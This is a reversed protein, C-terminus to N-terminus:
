ILDTFNISDQNPVIINYTKNEAISDTYTILIEYTKTVTATEVLEVEWYGDSGANVTVESRLLLLGTHKFPTLNRVSVTGELPTGDPEILWGYLICKSPISPTSFFNYTVVHQSISPTTTGGNSHLFVLLRFYVGSSLDLSGANTNIEAVTSSQAFTANSTAWAAGDWYRFTSTGSPTTRTELVCKVADSGTEVLSATLGELGDLQLFTNSTVTPNDTGYEEGQVSFNIQDVSSQTNSQGFFVAVTITSLGTTPFMLLNAIIDAKSSAQAYTNNSDSWAEGDWYKGQLTYRPTGSETSTPASAPRLTGPGTYTFVPLVAFSETYIFDVLTYGLTYTTTHQINSYIIYNDFSADAVNYVSPAAGLFYSVIIGGRVWAGINTSSLLAGDVFLYIIGSTSDLALEFEYDTGSVPSWASLVSSSELGGSSNYLNLRINNGSPSNFLEFRDGNGSSAKCTLINVNTAPGTTYNPTYIFKHTELATSTSEYSVGHVGQCVLKGNTIIPTGNLTASVSGAKSWTLDAEDVIPNADVNFKVAFVSNAPTQDKQRIVGSAFEAKTNDYTFGTDDTFDESFDSQSFFQLKLKASDDAIEIKSSDFILNAATDYNVTQLLGM